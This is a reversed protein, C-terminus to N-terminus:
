ERGSMGPAGYSGLSSERGRKALSLFTSAFYILLFPVSRKSRNRKKM